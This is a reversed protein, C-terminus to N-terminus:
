GPFLVDRIKDFLPYEDRDIGDVIISDNFYRMFRAREVLAEPLVAALVELHHDLNASEKKSKALLEDAEEKSVGFEQAFFERFRSREANTTQGDVGIVAAAICAFSDRLPELQPNNQMHVALGLPSAGLRGHCIPLPKGLRRRWMQPTPESISTGRKAAISRAFLASHLKKCFAHAVSSTPQTTRSFAAFM